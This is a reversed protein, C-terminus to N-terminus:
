RNHGNGIDNLYSPISKNAISKADIALGSSLCMMIWSPSSWGIIV